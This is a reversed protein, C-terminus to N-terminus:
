RGAGGGPRSGRGKEGGGETRLWEGTRLDVAIYFEQGSVRCRVVGFGSGDPGWAFDPLGGGPFVDSAPHNVGGEAAIIALGDGRSGDQNFADARVPRVTFRGDPSEMGPGGPTLPRLDGAATRLAFFERLGFIEKPWRRPSTPPLGNAKLYEIVWDNHGAARGLIGKDVLCGAIPELPLGTLRDLEESSDHMLGFTYITPGGRRLQAQAEMRGRRYGDAYENGSDFAYLFGESVEGVADSVARFAAVAIGVLMVVVLLGSTSFRFRRM